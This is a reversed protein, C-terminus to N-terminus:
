QLQKRLYELYILGNEYQYPISKEDAYTDLLGIIEKAKEKENRNILENAYIFANYRYGDFLLLEDTSNTNLFESLKLVMVLNQCIDNHTILQREGPILKDVIILSSLYDHLGLRFDENFSTTFCIERQFKNHQLLSLFLKDGRLIYKDYYSPKVTWEFNNITVTSDSWELLDLSDLTEVPLDFEIINNEILYDPYWITNLLSIDVISVDKRYGEVNQLYWLPITYIDGSSILIANHDCADLVKRNIALIFEGFGGRAKGEKFAWAASDPIQEYLYTMAMSGWEATIKNYPDLTIIEGNYKPSLEIVKEFQESSKLVLKLDMSAMTRADRSNIRSYAYGLLYRGEANAPELKLADNLINIIPQYDLQDYEKQNFDKEKYFFHKASDIQSQCETNQCYIDTLIVICIITLIIKM